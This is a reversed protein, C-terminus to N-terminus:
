QRFVAGGRVRVAERFAEVIACVLQYPDEAWLVLQLVGSELDQCSNESPLKLLALLAGNAKKSRQQKNCDLLQRSSDKRSTVAKLTSGAYSGLRQSIPIGVGVMTFQSPHFLFFLLVRKRSAYNQAFHIKPKGNSSLITPSFALLKREVGGGIM